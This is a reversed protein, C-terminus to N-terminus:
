DISIKCGYLAHDTLLATLTTKAEIANTTPPLRLAFKATTYPRM